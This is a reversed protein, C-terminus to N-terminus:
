LATRYAHISPCTYARIPTHMYPHTSPHICTYLNNTLSIAGNSRCPPMCHSLPSHTPHIPQSTVLRFDTQIAAQVLGAPGRGEPHAHAAPHGLLLRGTRATCFMDALPLSSLHPLLLPFSFMDVFTPQLTLLGIREHTRGSANCLGEVQSPCTMHYGQLCPPVADPSLKLIRVEVCNLQGRM